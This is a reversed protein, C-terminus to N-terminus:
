LRVGFHLALTVRKADLAAAGDDPNVLLGYSALLDNCASNGLGGLEGRTAPFYDPFQGAPTLLPRLAHANIVASGNFARAGAKITYLNSFGM